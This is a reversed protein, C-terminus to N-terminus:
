AHLADLVATVVDEPTSAGATIGLHAVGTFDLAPLEAASEVRVAFRAGAARAIELLRCTNSSGASGLVLVGDGGSRVFARVAEQRDRTATCIEAAPTQELLPYRRALTAVVEAATRADFTTQCLVGVPATAPYPLAAADACSAVVQVEGGHAVVVGVIGEVEVHDAYGIVVVPVRRRAFEQAQRHARAVFPCTADVIRLGRERAAAWLAPGVGHASFVLTGGAPVEDLSAVRRLGRAALRATVAENHVPPHLCHAPGHALADEVRRLAQAVGQCVGHPEITEVTM